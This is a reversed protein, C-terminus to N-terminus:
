IIIDGFQASYSSFGCGLPRGVASSGMRRLPGKAVSGWRGGLDSGVVDWLGSGLSGRDDVGDDDSM